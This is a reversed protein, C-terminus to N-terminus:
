PGIDILGADNIVYSKANNVKYKPMAHSDCTTWGLSSIGSKHRKGIAVRSLGIHRRRSPLESVFGKM